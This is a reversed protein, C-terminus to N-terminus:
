IAGTSSDQVSCNEETGKEYDGAKSKQRPVSKKKTRERDNKGGVKARTIHKSDIESDKANVVPAQM